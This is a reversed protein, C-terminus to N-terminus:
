GVTVFGEAWQDADVEYTDISFGEPLSSFGTQLALRARAVEANQLTSYIGILKVDETGDDFEHVHHLAFVTVM